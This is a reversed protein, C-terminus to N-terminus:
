QQELLRLEAEIPRMKEGIERIRREMEREEAATYREPENSLSDTLEDHQRELIRHRREVPKMKAELAHYQEQNAEVQVFARRAEALTADDRILYERGNIKAWLFDGSWRKTVSGIGKIPMNGTVIYSRDGRKFVYSMEAASLTLTACLLLLLAIQRRM